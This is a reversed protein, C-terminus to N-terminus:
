PYTSREIRIVGNVALRNLSSDCVCAANSGVLRASIWTTGLCPPGMLATGFFFLSIILLADSSVM